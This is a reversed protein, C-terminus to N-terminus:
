RKDGTFLESMLLLCAIAGLASFSFSVAEGTSFREQVLVLIVLLPFLIRM